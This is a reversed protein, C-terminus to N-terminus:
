REIEHARYRTWILVAGCRSRKGFFQVPIQSPKYVEVAEIQSAPVDNDIGMSTPTYEHGNVYFDVPCGISSPAARDMTPTSQYGWRTHRTEVRFGSVTRLLDTLTHPRLQEIGARDFFVGPGRRRREGFGSEIEFATRTTTAYVGSLQVPVPTLRLELSSTSEDTTVPIVLERFGIRRARIVYDGLPVHAIDFEGSELSTTFGGLGDISIRVGVVPHGSDDRVIGTLQMTSTRFGGNSSMGAGVALALPTGFVSDSAVVARRSVSSGHAARVSM